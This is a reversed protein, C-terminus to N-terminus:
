TAGAIREVYGSLDLFERLFLTEERSVPNLGGLVSALGPVQPTETRGSQRVVVQATSVYRDQAFFFYYIAALILPLCVVWVLLWKKKLSDINTTM